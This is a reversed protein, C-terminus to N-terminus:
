QQQYQPQWPQQLLQQQQQYLPQQNLLQQGGIDPQDPQSYVLGTYTQTM